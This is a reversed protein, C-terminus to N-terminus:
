FSYVFGVKVGGNPMIGLRFKLRNRLEKEKLYSQFAREARSKRMFNYLAFGGYYAAILSGGEEGSLAYVSFVSWLIGWLIRGRRGRAALSSLAEHSARERHGPDSISLVDELEREAGSKIALKSIGVGAMIAGSTLAMTGYLGTWFGGWWDEDNASSLAVVGSAMFAGGGVLWITGWIKRSENSRRALRKLYGEALSESEEESNIYEQQGYILNYMDGWNQRGGEVTAIRSLPARDSFQLYSFIQFTQHKRPYKKNQTFFLYNAPFLNKLSLFGRDNSGSDKILSFNEAFLSKDQAFASISFISLILFIAPKKM